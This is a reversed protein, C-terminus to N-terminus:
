KKKPRGGKESKFDQIYLTKLFISIQYINDFPRDFAKIMKGHILNGQRVLGGRSGGLVEQIESYGFPMRQRSDSVTEIRAEDDPIKDDLEIITKVIKAQAPSLRLGIFRLFDHCVRTEFDVMRIGDNDYIRPAAPLSAGEYRSVITYSSLQEIARGNSDYKLPMTMQKIWLYRGNANKVPYNIIYRSKLSRSWFKENEGWTKTLVAYAANAFHLYAAVYNPHIIAVMNEIKCGEEIYGLADSIGLVGVLKMTRYDFRAYYTDHNKLDVLSQWIGDAGNEPPFFPEGLVGFPQLNGEFNRLIEGLIKKTKHSM